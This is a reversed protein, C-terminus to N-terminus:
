KQTSAPINIKVIIFETRRNDSHLEESCNSKVKGECECSNVLQSEGYGKGYIRDKSIGQQVIYTASSKARKDSLNLNYKKSGRCDAHSGLEIVIDPYAKMVAVIRNLEIAADPRINWKNYDFYIPNLDILKGIDTGLELKGMTTSVKIDGEKDITTVFPITKSLYESKDFTLTYNIKKNMLDSSLPERAVGTKDTYISAVVNGTEKDRVTVQVGEIPLKTKIDTVSAVLTIEPIKDMLLDATIVDEEVATSINRTAEKYKDRTGKLVYNMDPELDFTYYGSADTQIEGVIIGKEDFLKVQTAALVVGTKSDKAYGELKKSLIFPKLLDYGYMDDSGKGGPRNSAFYGEKLDKNLVFAFDDSSGNIPSGVNKPNGFRGDKASAIFVDLGGLGPQGDSSYFLMGDSHYFPFMERGETNIKIGANIPVSWAGNTRTTYYIDTAGYGGPMDSVFYLTNGDASLAGHGVSYEKSNFPMPQIKGWKGKSNKESYWLELERVRRNNLDKKKAYSNRTFIMLNGDASFTAPGEHFRGNLGGVAKMRKIKRLKGAKKPHEEATYLDYFHRDTWNYQYDVVNGGHRSSTFVIQQGNYNAGFDSEDTNNKLSRIAFQGKDVRLDNYYTPDKLQGSTRIENSRLVDYERTHTMAEDYKGNMRLVDAYHLHDEAVLMNPYKEFLQDYYKEAKVANGTLRYSEGLRRLVHADRKKKGISEYSVIAENYLYNDYFKDARKTRATQANVVPQVVAFFLLGCIIYKFLTKM